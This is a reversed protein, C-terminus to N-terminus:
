EHDFGKEIMIRTPDKYATSTICPCVGNENFVWNRQHIKDNDAPTINGLPSNIPLDKLGGRELLKEILAKAKPTNLYYREDVEDELFDKM